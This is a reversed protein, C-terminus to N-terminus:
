KLYKSMSNLCEKNFSNYQKMLNNDMIKRPANTNHVIFYRIWQILNCAKVAHFDSNNFKETLEIVFIKLEEVYKLRNKFPDSSTIHEENIIISVIKPSLPHGPPNKSLEQYNKIVLFSM